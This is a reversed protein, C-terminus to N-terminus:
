CLNRVYTRVYTLLLFQKLVRCICMCYTLSKRLIWVQAWIKHYTCTRIYTLKTKVHKKVYTHQHISVSLQDHSVMCAKQLWCKTSYAYVTSGWNDSRRCIYKTIKFLTWISYKRILVGPTSNNEHRFDLLLVWIIGCHPMLRPHAVIKIHTFIIKFM